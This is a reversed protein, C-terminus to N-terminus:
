CIKGCRMFFFATALKKSMKEIHFKFNLLPDIHLGLFKVEPVESTHNVNPIQVLKSENCPTGIDNKNMYIKPPNERAVTSSTFLLFQTKNPHLALRHERCFQNVKQFETNVFNTLEIIDPGSTFLTTDDAFLISLLSSALPLDNIYILFLISGQPVTGLLIELLSSCKGDFFVFQKRNSLFSRFWELDAGELGFQKLKKLHIKHDVTDFAKRLFNSHCSTKKNLASSVTNLFQVLPHITSHSKRFGYQSPSFLNNEEIYSTLRNAMVKEFIKSFNNLLSIPRYNDMLTPDGSKFIPVVKAIKLGLLAQSKL